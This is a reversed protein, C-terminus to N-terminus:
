PCQTPLPPPATSSRVILEIPLLHIQPPQEATRRVLELITRGALAGMEAKPSRITTLPPSLYAASTIDDYGVVSIDMPVALGACRIAHLAGMALVDNHTFVATPPNPLALLQQMAQAGAAQGSACELVIQPDYPIGAAALAQQYGVFRQTSLASTPERSILAIRRHGLDILHQTAIRGGRLEDMVICHVGPLDHELVVVPIHAQVLPEILTLPESHPTIVVGDVQKARLMQIFREERDHHRDSNCLLVLFGEKTCISELQHAIEAFVPNMVNPLILGITSSQQLRLSRALENPYYGLEAIAEEVRARARASVPRPGNNLVYSVTAVSVGAREAVDKHTVRKVTMGTATM